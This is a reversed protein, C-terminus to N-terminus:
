HRAVIRPASRIRLAASALSADSVELNIRDSAELKLLYLSVACVTTLVRAYRPESFIALESIAPCVPAQYDASAGEFDDGSPDPCAPLQRHQDRYCGRDM